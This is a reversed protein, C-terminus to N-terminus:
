IASKQLCVIAYQLYQQAQKLDAFQDLIAQEAQELANKAIAKEQILKAFHTNKLDNQQQLRVVLAEQNRMQTLKEQAYLAQWLLVKQQLRASYATDQQIQQNLRETEQKNEVVKKELDQRQEQERQKEEKLFPILLRQAGYYVGLGIIILDLWRFVLTILPEYTLM